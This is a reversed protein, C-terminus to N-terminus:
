AALSSKQEAPKAFIRQRTRRFRLYLIFAAATLGIIFSWWAGAPGMAPLLWDTRILICSLPFGLLWYSGINAWTIIATDHCGRLLGAMIAQTADSIQYLACLVLLSSATSVVLPDSTYLGIIERRLCITCLMFVLTAAYMFRLTSRVMADFASKDQAGIHYSARISVAIGLSLPFMYLVASVNIAVQQASVMLAGLPAIILTVVCFFGMECLSAVGLPLGLRFIRRCLRLLPARLALMQRAAHRHQRSLLLMALLAACMIWHVIATALGCGAGGLAPLGWWGFVCAYNLPLNALLGLLCVVMAPRTQSYGEWCGQVVRMLLSAPVALMVFLLYKDAGAAMEASDTVLPFLMRGGQLLALEVLMLLVALCKASCLLSGVKRETGTGLLRSVMPGLISLIAGVSIMIPATVSCGLAVAALDITGASGAVFTDIVGMGINMLNALYLPLMLALIRRLEVRGLASSPAPKQAACDDAPPPNM